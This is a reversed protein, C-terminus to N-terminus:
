GDAAMKAVLLSATRFKLPCQLEHLLHLLLLLVHWDPFQPGSSSAACLTPPSVCPTDSRPAPHPSAVCFLDVLVRSDLAAIRVCSRSRLYICPATLAKISKCRTM